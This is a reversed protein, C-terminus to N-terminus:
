GNNKLEMIKGVILNYYEPKIIEADLFKTLEEIIKNTTYANFLQVIQNVEHSFDMGELVVDNEDRILLHDPLGNPAVELGFIDVIKQRLEDEAMPDPRVKHTM